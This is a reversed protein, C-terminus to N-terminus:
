KGEVGSKRDRPINAKSTITLSAERWSCPLWDKATAMESPFPSPFTFTLTEGVLPVRSELWVSCNVALTLPVESVATVQDAVVPETLLLPRYVAGVTLLCVSTTIVAVLTALGEFDAHDCM